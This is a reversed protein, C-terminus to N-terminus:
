LQVVTLHYVRTGAIAGPVADLVAQVYPSNATFPQSPGTWTNLAELITREQYNPQRWQTNQAAAGAAYSPFIASPFGAGTYVGIGGDGAGVNGPNNTVWSRGGSGASLIEVNGSLGFYMVEDVALKSASVPHKPCSSGSRHHHPSPLLGIRFSMMMGVQQRM